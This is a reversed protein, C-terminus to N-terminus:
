LEEEQGSESRELDLTIMTTGIPLSFRLFVLEDGILKAQVGKSIGTLRFGDLDDWYTLGFPIAHTSDIAFVLRIHGAERLYEKVLVPPVQAEFAGSGSETLQGGTYDRLLRPRGEGEVFVMQCEGDYYLFTAPWTGQSTGGLAMTYENVAPRFPKDRTLM